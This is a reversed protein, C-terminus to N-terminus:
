GPRRAQLAAEEERARVQELRALLERRLAAPVERGGHRESGGPTRVRLLVEALQVACPERVLGAMAAEEEPSVLSRAGRARHLRRAVAGTASSDSRCASGAAERDACDSRCASGAAARRRM